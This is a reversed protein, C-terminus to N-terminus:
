FIDQPGYPDAYRYDDQDSNQPAQRNFETLDFLM